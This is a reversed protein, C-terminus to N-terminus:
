IQVSMWHKKNLYIYEQKGTDELNYRFINSSATWNKVNKMKGIDKTTGINELSERNKFM